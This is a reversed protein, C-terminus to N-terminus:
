NKLFYLKLKILDFIMKFGDSIPNVTSTTDVNMDIIPIELIRKNKYFSKIIIESTILFEKSQLISIDKLISARFLLTGQTDKFPVEFVIKLILNFVISYFKRSLSRNIKSEPHGKSGIFLEFNKYLNNKVVYDLESNGFSADAPVFYIWEFQSEEFGKILASGLGKKSEILKVNHDSNINEIFKLAINKSNDTSENEVVIIELESSYVNDILFSLTSEINLEKNHLPVIISLSNEFNVKKFNM